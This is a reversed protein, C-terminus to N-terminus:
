DEAAIAALVIIGPNGGSADFNFTYTGRDYFGEPVKYWVSRTGAPITVCNPYNGFIYCDRTGINEIMWATMKSKDGFDVSRFTGSNTFPRSAIHGPMLRM